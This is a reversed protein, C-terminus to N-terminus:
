VAVVRGERISRYAAWVVDMTKLTDHGSTEHPIDARLGAIFHTQCARFADGYVREDPPLSVPVLRSESALNVFKLAGDPMTSLSGATGEVITPNLAWEPRASEAPACWSLDLLGLAGSAFQLIVMALDEGPHGAGFRGSVASVTAVEGCLFRASDVLHCGMELLILRPMSGLFPQEAFGDARLARTDAHAIRVRIPRGVVGADLAARLARYWPRFRWNEHIMLRVGAAACSAIMVLLDERELAAPKQCLVHAGHRAALAVLERHSAPGTCIEIFDFPGDREFMTAPDRHLTAGPAQRSAASLREPDAECLAALQVDPVRAWGELHHRSVNGCGILAGRLARNAAM